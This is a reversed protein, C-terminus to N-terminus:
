IFLAVVCLSLIIYFSTFLPSAVVYKKIGMSLLLFLTIACYGFVSMAPEKKTMVPSVYSGSSFNEPALWAASGGKKVRNSLSVVPKSLGTRLSTSPSLTFPVPMSFMSLEGNTTLKDFWLRSKKLLRSSKLQV